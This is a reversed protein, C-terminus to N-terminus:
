AGSSGILHKESETMEYIGCVLKDIESDTKEEEEELRTREDTRKDGLESIRKQIDNMKEALEELQKSQSDSPIRIPILYTKAKEPEYKKTEGSHYEYGFHTYWFDSLKSNLVALVYTPPIVKSVIM